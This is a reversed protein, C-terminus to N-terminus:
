SLIERLRTARLEFEQKLLRSVEQAKEPGGPLHTARLIENLRMHRDHWESTLLAKQQCLEHDRVERNSMNADVEARDLFGRHNGDVLSCEPAFPSMPQPPVHNVMSTSHPHNIPDHQPSPLSRPSVDM